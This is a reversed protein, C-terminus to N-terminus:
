ATLPRWRSMTRRARPASSSAAGPRSAMPAAVTFSGSTPCPDASNEYFNFWNYDFHRTSEVLRQGGHDVLPSYNPLPPPHAPDPGMYAFILGGLTRVPYAPHKVKACFNTDPPESPQELCNGAM